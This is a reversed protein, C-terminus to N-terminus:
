AQQHLLFELFCHPNDGLCDLALSVRNFRSLWQPLIRLVKFWKTRKCNGGGASHETTALSDIARQARQAVSHAM